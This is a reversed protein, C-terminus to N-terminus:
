VNRKTKSCRGKKKDASYFLKYIIRTASEEIVHDQSIGWPNGGHAEVKSHNVINRKGRQWYSWHAAVGGDPITFLTNNKELVSMFPFALNRM